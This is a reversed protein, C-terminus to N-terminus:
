ASESYQYDKRLRRSNTLALAKRRVLRRFSSAKFCGPITLVLVRPGFPLRSLSQRMTPMAVLAESPQAPSTMVAM